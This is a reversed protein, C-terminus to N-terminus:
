RPFLDGDVTFVRLNIEDKYVNSNKVLTNGRLIMNKVNSVGSIESVDYLSCSNVTSQGRIISGNFMETNTVKCAGAINASNAIYCKELELIGGVNCTDRFICLNARTKGFIRAAGFIESDTVNSSDFVSSTDRLISNSLTANGFVIANNLIASTDNHDLNVQSQIFGGPSDAHIIIEQDTFPNIWTFTKIYWIRFVRVPSGTHPHLFTKYDGKLIEYKM